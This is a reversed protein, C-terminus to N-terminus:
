AEYHVWDSYRFQIVTMAVIILALIWSMAAGEGIWAQQFTRQYLYFAGSALSDQNQPNQLIYIVEFTQLAAIMGIVLNYFMAPSIMPLTIKTFRQWRNAGDVEAAEYLSQPVGKLAALFILMGAGSSWMTILIVAPKAWLENSLWLPVRGVEPLTATANRFSTFHYAPSGTAQEIETFANFYRMGDLFSGALLLGFGILSAIIIGRQLQPSRNDLRVLLALIAIYAAYIWNPSLTELGYTEKLYDLNSIDALGTQFTLYKLIVVWGNAPQQPLLQFFIAGVLLLSVGALAYDKIVKHRGPLLTILLPLAALGLGAIYGSTAVGEGAELTLYQSTAMVISILFFSIGIVQWVRGNSQKSQRQNMVVPAAFCLGLGMMLPLSIPAQIIGAALLFGGIIIASVEATRQALQSKGDEWDGLLRWFVFVAILAPLTYKLPGIPDGRTLGIYFGNFGEVSYIFGRYLWNFLFFSKAGGQLFENIFGGNSSLMYRWALLIAPGGALIVPMYFILRFVRIGRLKNNLIMAMLLSAALQLPVGILAYYASNWMSQQFRRGSAGNGALLDRYNELGIWEPTRGLRYNTFSYYLSALSPGLVFIVFGLLWPSAFFFGWFVKRQETETLGRLKGIWSALRAVLYSGILIFIITGGSWLLSEIKLLNVESM